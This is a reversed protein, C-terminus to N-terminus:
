DHSLKLNTGFGNISINANVGNPTIYINTNANYSPAACGSILLFLSVSFIYKM